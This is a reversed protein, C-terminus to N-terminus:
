KGTRRDRLLLTAERLRRIDSRSVGITRRMLLDVRSELELVQGSKALVDLEAIEDSSESLIPFLLRAAERPELKLMGGGMGHGEIECSLATLASAWATVLQQASAKAKPRSRVVHLTNPAVVKAQNLFLKPRTGSMYSLFADGTYVHPVSYWPTRNRCKYGESVGAKVGARVYAAVNKELGVATARIRLLWNSDGQANLVKWDGSTFLLGNVDRANRLSKSLHSRPIKWKEVESTSLHFFDNNGTVYGIGVDAVDGLRVVRTHSALERYLERTAAPLFYEVLRTVGNTWGVTSQGSDRDLTINTARSLAAGDHLQHLTLESFPRGRGEALLLVTDESLDPFLKRAFVLLKVRSFSQALFRVVPQAYSAHALEAPAVVAMRGGSEIFTTAHVLFPAWSSSLESLKVGADLARNLAKRRTAGSFSQYRIFPPNGVVATVLGLSAPSQDFFDGQTLVPKPHHADLMAETQRCTAQSLEIGRVQREVTGGLDALRERAANLFVGEGASPDLVTDDPERVAWSTLFEAVNQPTYFAGLSKQLEPTM